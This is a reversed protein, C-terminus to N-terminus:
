NVYKEYSVWIKELEGAVNGYVFGREKSLWQVDKSASYEKLEEIARNFFARPDDINDFNDKMLNTAYAAQGMKFVVGLLIQANNFTEKLYAYDPKRLKSKGQEIQRVSERVMDSALQNRRKFEAFSFAKLELQVSFQDFSGLVDDKTKKNIPTGPKRFMNFKNEGRHWDPLWPSSSIQSHTFANMGDLTFGNFIISHDNELAKSVYPEAAKSFLRQIWRRRVIEPDVVPGWLQNCAQEVQIGALSWLTGFQTRDHLNLRFVAMEANRKLLEQMSYIYPEGISNPLAGGGYYEADTISLMGLKNHQDIEARLDGPLFSMIPLKGGNIWLNNPWYDEELDIVEPFEFLTERMARIGDTTIGWQHPWYTLKINRKKAIETAVKLYVRTVEICADLNQGELFMRHSQINDGAYQAGEVGANLCLGDLEPFNDLLGIIYNRYFVELKELYKQPRIGKEYYNQISSESFEPDTFPEVTMMVDLDYSKMQSFMTHWEQMKEVDASVMGDKHITLPPNVKGPGIATRWEGPVVFIGNIGYRPLEEITSMYLTHRNNDTHGGYATGCVAAYRKNLKPKHVEYLNSIDEELELRDALNWVAYLVARPRNGTAVIVLPKQSITKLAWADEDDLHQGSWAEALRPDHGTVGLIVTFDYNAYDVRPDEPGDVFDMRVPSKAKLRDVAHMLTNACTKDPVLILGCKLDPKNENNQGYGIGISLCFLFLLMLLKKIKM